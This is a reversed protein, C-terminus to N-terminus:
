GSKRLSPWAGAADDARDKVLLSHRAHMQGALTLGLFGWLLMGTVGVHASFFALQTLISIAVSYVAVLFEDPPRRRPFASAFLIAMGIAYVVAGVSGLTIFINIVGSDYGGQPVGSSALGSAVGTSGLGEGLFNLASDPLVQEYASIRARLSVDTGLSGFTQFRANFIQTVPGVAIFPLLAGLFV